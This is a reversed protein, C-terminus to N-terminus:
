THDEEAAPADEWSRATVVVRVDEAWQYVQRILRLDHTFTEIHVRRRRGSPGVVTLSIRVLQMTM